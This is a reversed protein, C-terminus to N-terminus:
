KGGLTYGISVGYRAFYPSSFEVNNRVAYFHAEPRVFFGGKVYYRVGAGVHGLFHNTSVYNQCNTGCAPAVYFHLTEAGIGASVEPAFRKSVAPLWIGNFDWVMPRFNVAAPQYFGQSGRWALEGSVGLTRKILFDASFSPYLGGRIAQPTYSGSASAASPSGLTGFGVAADMQQAQAAVSLLLSVCVVVPAILKKV